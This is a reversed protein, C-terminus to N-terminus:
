VEVERGEIIAQPIERVMKEAQDKGLLATAEAVARSLIPPRRDKSHADSAIIHVLNKTLLTKTFKKIDKGFEGTISMATVQSLAGAQVFEGLLKYNKQIMAIREPHSLIPVINKERLKRITEKVQPFLFYDSLELLVYRLTLANNPNIANIANLCLATGEEIQKLIDPQFSNDAGPLITLVPLTFHSGHVTFPSCHNRSTHITLRQNLEAVKESILTKLPSYVGPKIHPTAVITHIGDDRAIACMEITEDWGQAGDDLDPLIHCHIDIM